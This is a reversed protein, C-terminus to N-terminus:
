KIRGILQLAKTTLAHEEEFNTILIVCFVTAAVQMGTQALPILKSRDGREMAKLKELQKLQKVLKGYRKSTKDEILYLEDKIEMIERDIPKPRKFIM